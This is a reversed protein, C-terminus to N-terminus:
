SISREYLEELKKMVYELTKPANQELNARGTGLGDLPIILVDCEPISNFGEDIHKKNQEFEDDTMFAGSRYDPRKKTPIGIANPEGRMEKAQGGFGDRMLNDGFLYFVDRNAILDQRYIFKQKIVKM